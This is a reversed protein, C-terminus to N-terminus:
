EHDSEKGNQADAKAGARNDTSDDGRVAICRLRYVRLANKLLKRVRVEVPPGEGEARFVLTWITM